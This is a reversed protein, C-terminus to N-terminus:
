SHTTFWNYMFAGYGPTPNHNGDVLSFDGGNLDTWGNSPTYAYAVLSIGNTDCFSTLASMWPSGSVGTGYHEGTETIVVPVGRTTKLAAVASWRSQDPWGTGGLPPFSLNFTAGTGQGSSSYQPVANSPLLLNSYAGGVPSGGSSHSLYQAPGGGAVGPTGGTYPNIQVATVASGNVGTVQLQAQWYVSNAAAGSEPMPLLITDGVAYGSGASAVTANSVYSSAPYPHWCAGIQPKWGSGSYGAPATSDSPAYTAWGSLDQNYQDGSLLCVNWAGAARIGALMQAHGAVYWGYPGTITATTGSKSGTITNGAAVNPANTSGNNFIHVFQTGSSPLGSTTNRYYCLVQGVTSGNVAVAEGPVFGTGVPTDCPFPFINTYPLGFVGYYNGFYAGNYLGGNMLLDWNGADDGYMAPENYLEFIVSRDDVTGGNRKLATGNPYGYTAAISQWFNISNDQNAMYDQGLPASRGPNSFALTLIVYCGIANLAEIQATIQAAYSSAGSYPDPNLWGTSGDGNVQTTYCEYGLWCAENIGIRIANMKWNALAATNPGHAQDNGNSTGGSADPGAFTGLAYAQINAGRLQVPSNAGNILTAGSVSILGDYGTTSTIPQEITFKASAVASKQLGDAASIAQVTKSASVSIPSAYVASSTTPITGDTSYYITAGSTQTSLSVAQASTYTGGPPTIAPTQAVTGAPAGGMGITKVVGGGCATLVGLAPGAVIIKRRTKNVPRHQRSM